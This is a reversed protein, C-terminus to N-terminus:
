AGTPSTSSESLQVSGVNSLRSYMAYDAGDPGFSRLIGEKELYLSRIWKDARANGTHVTAQLRVLQLESMLIDIWRKSARHFTFAYRRISMDPVLWMEAVGPWM